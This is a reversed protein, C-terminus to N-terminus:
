NALPDEEYLAYFAVGDVGPSNPRTSAASESTNNFSRRNTPLMRDDEELGALEQTMRGRPFLLVRFVVIRDRQSAREERRQLQLALM